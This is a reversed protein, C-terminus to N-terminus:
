GSNETKVKNFRKIKTSSPGHLSSNIRKLKLNIQNINLSTTSGQKEKSALNFPIDEITNLVLGQALKNIRSFKRSWIDNGSFLSCSNEEVEKLISQAEVSAISNHEEFQNKNGFYKIESKVSKMSSNKIHNSDKLTKIEKLKFRPHYHVNLNNNLYFSPIQKQSRNRAISKKNERGESLSRKQYYNSKQPNSSEKTIKYIRRRRRSEVRDVSYSKKVTSNM